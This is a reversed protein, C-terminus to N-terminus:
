KKTTKRKPAVKEEVKSETIAVNEKEGIHEVLSNMQEVLADLRLVIAHMYQEKVNLPHPLKM